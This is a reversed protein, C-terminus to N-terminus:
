AVVSAVLANSVNCLDPRALFIVFHAQPAVCILLLDPMVFVALLACTVSGLLLSIRQRLGLGQQVLSRNHILLDQLASFDQRVLDQPNQPLLHASAALLALM